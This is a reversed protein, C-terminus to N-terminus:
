QNCTAKYIAGYNTYSGRRCRFCGQNGHRKKLWSRLRPAIFQINCCVIIHDLAYLIHLKWTRFPHTPSQANPSKSKPKM